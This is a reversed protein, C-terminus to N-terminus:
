KKNELCTMETIQRSISGAISVCTCTLAAFLCFWFPKYKKFTYKKFNIKLYFFVKTAVDPAVDPAMPAVVM